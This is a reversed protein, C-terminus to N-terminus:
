AGPSLRSFTAGSGLDSAMGAVSSLAQAGAANNAMYNKLSVGVNSALQETLQQFKTAQNRLDGAVRQAATFADGKSPNDLVAQELLTFQRQVAAAAANLENEAQKLAAETLNFSGGPSTV